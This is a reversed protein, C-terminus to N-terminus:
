YPMVTCGSDLYNMLRNVFHHCNNTFLNYTGYRAKFDRTFQEAQERTCTSYGAVYGAWLIQCDSPCRHGEWAVKNEWDDAGVGWEFVEGRFLLVRHVTCLTCVENVDRRRRFLPTTGHFFPASAVSNSSSPHDTCSTDQNVTSDKNQSRASTDLPYPLIRGERICKTYQQGTAVSSALTILLILTPFGM